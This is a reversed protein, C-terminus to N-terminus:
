KGPRNTDCKGGATSGFFKFLRCVRRQFRGPFRRRSIALIQRGPRDPIIHGPKCVVGSFAAFGARGSIVFGCLIGGVPQSGIANLGTVAVAKKLIDGQPDCFAVVIRRDM